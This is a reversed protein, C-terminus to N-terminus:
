SAQDPNQNQLDSLTAKDLPKQEGFAATDIKEAAIGQSVLFEKVRQVRLESLSQNYDNGGREDTYGGLSLKADPPM